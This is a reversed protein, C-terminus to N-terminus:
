VPSLAANMRHELRTARGSCYCLTRHWKQNSASLLPIIDGKKRLKHIESVDEESNHGEMLAAANHTSDLHYVKILHVDAFTKIPRCSTSSKFRYIVMVCVLFARLFFFQIRLFFFFGHYAFM